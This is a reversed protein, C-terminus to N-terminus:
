LDQVDGALVVEVQMNGDFACLCQTVQYKFVDGHVADDTLGLGLEHELSSVSYPDEWGELLGAVASTDPRSSASIKEPVAAGGRRYGLSTRGGRGRFSAVPCPSLPVSDYDFTYYSTGDREPVALQSV